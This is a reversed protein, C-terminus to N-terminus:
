LAYTKEERRQARVAGVLGCTLESLLKPKDMMMERAGLEHDLVCVIM